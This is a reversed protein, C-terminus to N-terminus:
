ETLRKIEREIEPLLAELVFSQISYKSNDAIFQLKAKQEETFRMNYVETPKDSRKGEWPYVPAAVPESTAAVAVPQGAAAVFDDASVPPKAMPPRKFAM